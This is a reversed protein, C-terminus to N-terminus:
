CIPHFFSISVASIDIIKTVITWAITIATVFISAHYVIATIVPSYIASAHEVKRNATNQHSTLAMVVIMTVM